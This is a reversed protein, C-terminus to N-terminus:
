EVWEVINTDRKVVGDIRGKAYGVAISTLPEWPPVIGIKEKIKKMNPYRMPEITLGVYCTGLGLSHAALVMNQAVIGGDLDPNSIGRPHKCIFVVAPAGWYLVENCRDAKEVAAFPRPDMKKVMFLSMATFLANKRLLRRGQEDFYLNKLRRLVRMAEHEIEQIIKKDTLVIFKHPQCNGSSPAFRGAEVIRALLERPVPKDKFLRNSRRKYIVREVETLEGEFEKWERAEGCGLPDPYRMEEKLWNRYRGAPVSYSGELHMAGTPCVTVCNWCNLCAEKMGGYRHPVPFGEEDVVFGYTPCAEVCRRCKECKERDISREPFKTAPLYAQKLDDFM